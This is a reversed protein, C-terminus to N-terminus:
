HVKIMNKLNGRFNEWRHSLGSSKSCIGVEMAKALDKAVSKDFKNAAAGDKALELQPLPQSDPGACSSAHHLPSVMPTHCVLRYHCTHQKYVGNVISTDVM